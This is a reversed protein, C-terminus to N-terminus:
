LLEKVCHIIISPQFYLNTTLEVIVSNFKPLMVLTRNGSDGGGRRFKPMLMAMTTPTTDKM